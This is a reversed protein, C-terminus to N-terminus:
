PTNGPVVEWTLREGPLRAPMFALHAPLEQGDACLPPHHLCLASGKWAHESLSLVAGRKLTHASPHLHGRPHTQVVHPWM